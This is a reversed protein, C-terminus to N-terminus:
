EAARSLRTMDEPMAREEEPPEAWEAEYKEGRAGAEEDTWWEEWGM